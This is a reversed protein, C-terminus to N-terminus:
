FSDARLPSCSRNLFYCVAPTVLRIKGNFGGIGSDGRPPFNFRLLHSIRRLSLWGFIDPISGRIFCPNFVSLPLPGFIPSLLLKARGTRRVTETRPEQRATVGGRNSGHEM